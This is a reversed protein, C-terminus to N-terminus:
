VLRDVKAARQETYIHAGKVSYLGPMAVPRRATRSGPGGGIRGETRGFGTAFAGSGADCRRNRRSRKASMGVHGLPRHMIPSSRESGRGISAIKARSTLAARQRAADLM